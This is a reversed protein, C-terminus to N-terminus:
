KKCIYKNVLIAAVTRPKSAVLGSDTLASVTDSLLLIYRLEVLFIILVSAFLVSFLEFVEIAVLVESLEIEVLAVSPSLVLLLVKSLLLALVSGEM